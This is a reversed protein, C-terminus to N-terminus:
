AVHYIEGDQPSAVTYISGPLPEPETRGPHNVTAQVKVVPELVMRERAAALAAQKNTFGDDLIDAAPYVGWKKISKDSVAVFNDFYPVDVTSDKSLEYYEYDENSD